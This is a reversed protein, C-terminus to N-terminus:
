AEVDIHQGLAMSRRDVSEYGALARLVATQDDTLVAGVAVGHNSREYAVALHELTEFALRLHYESVDAAGTLRTRGLAHELTHNLLLTDGYAKAM